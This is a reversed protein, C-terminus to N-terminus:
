LIDTFGPLFARATMNHQMRARAPPRLRPARLFALSLQGSLERNFVRAYHSRQHQHQAEGM